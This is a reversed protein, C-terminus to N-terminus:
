LLIGRCILDDRLKKRLRTLRMNVATERMGLSDGIERHSCFRFYRLLFIRRDKASLGDLFERICARIDESAQQSDQWRDDTATTDPLCFELEELSGIYEMGARKDAALYRVRDIARRRVLLCLYASFSSPETPPVTNWLDLLADNVCEEADCDSGVIRRALQHAQRGFQEWIATLAREDRAQLLALLQADTYIPYTM